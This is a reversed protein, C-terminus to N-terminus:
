ILDLAASVDPGAPAPLNIVPLTVHARRFDEIRKRCEQRTGTVTVSDIMAETLCAGARKLDGKQVEQKVRNLVEEDLAEKELMQEARGPRTLLFAVQERTANRAASPDESVSCILFAVIGIESLNRGAKEAGIKINEIVTSMYKLSCGATLIVGDAMEGALQLMKPGVAAVYIPVSAQSTKFGLKMNKLTFVRGEYTVNEGSLLRRVIQLAERMVFIPKEGKMSMQEEIWYLAGTGIGLIARGGSFEDVSAISMAILAPHRTYPNVVGTALGIRSTASAIAGLTSFADRFLYHEAVWVSEYGKQEAKKACDVMDKVSFAEPRFGIGLRAM